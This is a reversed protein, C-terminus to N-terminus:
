KVLMLLHLRPVRMMYNKHSRMVLVVNTVSGLFLEKKGSMLGM